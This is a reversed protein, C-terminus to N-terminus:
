LLIAEMAKEDMPVPVSCNGHSTTALTKKSRAIEKLLFCGLVVSFSM